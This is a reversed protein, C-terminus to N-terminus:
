ETQKYDGCVCVSNDPKIIPVIPAAWESHSIPKLIGETVLHELEKEVIKLHM